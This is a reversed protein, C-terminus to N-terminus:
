FPYRLEPLWKTWIAELRGNSKIRAIASNVTERLEDNGKRVGMGWPNRTEVTFAMDIDSAEAIPILAVDDDVVADIEGARLAGVMDGFVDDSSGDFPVLIAGGFTRALRMNASDAIAGVRKGTLGAHTSVAEGARMIVSENFIGYPDTFDVLELREPIIGQGCWVGDTRGEAVSPLFDSWQLFVWDFELGAEAFALEAVDPEFGHREGDEGTWFLPTADLAACAIQLRRSM